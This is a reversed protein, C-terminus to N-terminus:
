GTRRHTRDFRGPHHRPGAIEADSLFTAHRKKDLNPHCKSSANNHPMTQHFFERYASAIKKAQHYNRARNIAADDKRQHKISDYGTRLKQGV